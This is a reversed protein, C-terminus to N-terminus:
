VKFFDECCGLSTSLIGLKGIFFHVSPFILCTAWPWVALSHCFWSILIFRRTELGKSKVLLTHPIHTYKIYICVKYKYLLTYTIKHHIETHIKQDSVKPKSPMDELPSPCRSCDVRHVRRHNNLLPQSWSSTTQVAPPGAPYPPLLYLPTQAPTYRQFTALSPMRASTISPLRRSSPILESRIISSILM